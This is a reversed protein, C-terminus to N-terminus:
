ISIRFAPSTAQQLAAHGDGCPEIISPLGELAVRQEDTSVHSYIGITMRADLHRALTQAMKMNAGSRVVSSIFSHRLARFDGYKDDVVYPANAAALDKRIARASNKPVRFPKLTHVRNRFIAPRCIRISRASPACRRAFIIRSAPRSSFRRIPVHSGRLFL